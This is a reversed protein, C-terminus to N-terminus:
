TGGTRPQKWRLTWTSGPRVTRALDAAQAPLQGFQATALALSEALLPLQGDSLLVRALDRGQGIPSWSAARFALDNEILASDLQEPSESVIRYGVQDRALRISGLQNAADAALQRSLAHYAMPSLVPDFAAGTIIEGLQDPAAQQGHSILEGSEYLWQGLLSRRAYRAVAVEDLHLPTLLQAVDLGGDARLVIGVSTVMRRAAAVTLEIEGILASRVALTCNPLPLLAAGGVIQSLGPSRGVSGLQILNQHYAKPTKVEAELGAAIDAPPRDWASGDVAIALSVWSDPNPALLPAIPESFQFMAQSGHARALAILTALTLAPNAQAPGFHEALEIASQHETQGTVSAVLPSAFATALVTTSRGEEIEAITESFKESGVRFRVRYTGPPLALDAPQDSGAQVTRSLYPPDLGTIEVITWREAVVAELWGPQRGVSRIGYLGRTTVPSEESYAVGAPGPGPDSPASIPDPPLKPGPDRSDDYRHRILATTM